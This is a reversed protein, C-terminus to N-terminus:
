EGKRARLVVAPALVPVPFLLPVRSDVRAGFKDLASVMDAPRSSRDVVEFYTTSTFADILERSVTSGDHDIVFTATNKIDMNVAYGFAILQIIPSVFM